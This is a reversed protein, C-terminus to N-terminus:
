RDGLFFRKLATLLDVREAPKPEPAFKWTLAADLSQELTALPVRQEGVRATRAVCDIVAQLDIPAHNGPYKRLTMTVVEGDWHAEDLSWRDDAVTWVPSGDSRDVITPVEVWLTNFVERMSVSIEFARAPSVSQIRVEPPM